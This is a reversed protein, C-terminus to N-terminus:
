GPDDTEGERLCQSVVSQRAGFIAEWLAKIRLRHPARRLEKGRDMETKAWCPEEARAGCYVCPLAIALFDLKVINPDRKPM